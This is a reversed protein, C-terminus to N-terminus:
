NFDEAFILFCLCNNYNVQLEIYRCVHSFKMANCFAPYGLSYSECVYCQFCRFDIKSVSNDGLQVTQM